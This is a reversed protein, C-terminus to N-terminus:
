LSMPMTLHHVFDNSLEPVIRDLKGGLSFIDRYKHFNSVVRSYTNRVSVSFSLLRRSIERRLPVRSSVEIVNIWVGTYFCVSCWKTMTRPPAHSFPRSRVLSSNLSNWLNARYIDYGEHYRVAALIKKASRLSCRAGVTPRTFFGAIERRVVAM